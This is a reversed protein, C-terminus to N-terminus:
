NMRRAFDTSPPEICGLDIQSQYDNNPICKGSPLTEPVYRSLYPDYLANEIFDVMDLMEERTLNLPKFYESLQSDPVNPNQKIAKNMYNIVDYVSTFTAGHGYFPSDKLNYLQPIKFKYDDDPNNTFGGRGKAAIAADPTIIIGPGVLDGMGMGHFENKALAPGTHCVICNAKGFFLTAGNKQAPTMAGNDGRLWRQFPARNSLVTREYAAIALGAYERSMIIEPALDPYVEMFL